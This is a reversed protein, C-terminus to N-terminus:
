RGPSGFSTYAYRHTLGGYGPLKLTALPFVAVKLWTSPNFLHLHVDAHETIVVSERGVRDKVVPIHEQVTRSSCIYTETGAEGRLMVSTGWCGSSVISVILGRM